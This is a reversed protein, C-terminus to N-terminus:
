SLKRILGVLSFDRLNSKATGYGGIGRKRLKGLLPVDTFYNNM